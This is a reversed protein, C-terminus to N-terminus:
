AKQTVVIYVDTNLVGNPTVDTSGTFTDRVVKIANELSSAKVLMQGKIPKESEMDTMVVKLKFWPNDDDTTNEDTNNIVDLLKIPKIAPEDYGEAHVEKLLKYTQEEADGYTAAEIVYTEKVKVDKEAEQDFRKYTVKSEYFKKTM